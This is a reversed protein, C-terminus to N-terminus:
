VPARGAFTVTGELALSVKHIRIGNTGQLLANLLAIIINVALPKGELFRIVVANKIFLTIVVKVALCACGSLFVAGVSIM